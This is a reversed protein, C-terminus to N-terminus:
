EQVAFGAKKIDEKTVGKKEADVLSSSRVATEGNVSILELKIKKGKITKTLVISM